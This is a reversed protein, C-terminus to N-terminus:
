SEGRGLIAGKFFALSNIMAAKIGARKLNYIIRRPTLYFMRFGKKQLNVLDKRTLDNVKIAAGGYRRFQSFDDTLLSIGGINKKAMQFLETGPYPTSISIYIQDCNKLGKIFELTRKATKKTEFPHGLMVEGRTELGVEKAIKYAKKIEALTIGKKIVKLIRPDGSEIGFAIRALGAQHMIELLEKDITNARTWGEWTIDLQRNIIEQCIKIIRQRNLTLTDDIFTFHNIKLKKVLYEIENLVSEISRERIKRGFVKHAACFICNFPCGRSTMLTTFRVIGRGSVSWLYKNLKLGKRDPLPLQDLDNMLPRPSNVIIKGKKDRYVLGKIKKLPPKGSRIFQVLEVATEEGEGYVGYDFIPAKSFAERPFATLHPGGIVLRAKPWTKKIAAALEKALHFIPTTATLGVLDPQYRKTRQLVQKKNLGEMEIDIIKTQHGEKKLVASLYCLGLPPYGIGTKAAEKFSGYAQGWPPQILLIKM